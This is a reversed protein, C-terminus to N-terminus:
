RNVNETEVPRKVYYAQHNSCPVFVVEICVQLKLLMERAICHMGYPMKKTSTVIANVFVKTLVKLLQLGLLAFVIYSHGTVSFRMKNRIHSLNQMHIQITSLMM